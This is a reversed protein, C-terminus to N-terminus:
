ADEKAGYAGFVRAVQVAPAEMVGVMKSAPAQLVGVIKSRLEELSPLKSLQKVGEADLMKDGMAGAIIVLKDHDNAFNQAVKAATVPDKSTAIGTPGTFKDALASFQTGELARQALRNKTVKFQGGEASLKRRLDTMEAVSLGKYHCLVVLENESFTENLQAVAEAKQNRDM